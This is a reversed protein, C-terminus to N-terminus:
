PIPVDFNNLLEFLDELWLTRYESIPPPPAVGMVTNRLFFLFVSLVYCFTTGQLPQASVNLYERIKAKRM